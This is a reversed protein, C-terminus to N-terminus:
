EQRAALELVRFVEPAEMPVPLLDFAGHSLVEQWLQEDALRSAVVVTAPEGSDRCHDVLQKWDGDPLDADCLVVRCKASEYCDIAAKLTRVPTLSVKDDAHLNRLSRHFDECPSIALVPIPVATEMDSM